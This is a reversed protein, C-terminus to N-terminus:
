LDGYLDGEDDVEMPATGNNTGATNEGDMEDDNGDASEKQPLPENVDQKLDLLCQLLNQIQAQRIHQHQEAIQLKQRVQKLEQEVTETRRQLVRRAVPHKSSALKALVEYERRNALTSRSAALQRRQEWVRDEMRTLLLGNSNKGDGDDDDDDDDDGDSICSSSSSALNQQEDNELRRRQVALALKTLDLQMLQLERLLDEKATNANSATIIASAEATSSDACDEEIPANNNKNEGVLLARRLAGLRSVCRTLSGRAGGAIGLGQALRQEATGPAISAVATTTSVLTPAPSAAAM